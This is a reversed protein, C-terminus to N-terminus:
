ALALVSRGTWVDVVDVFQFGTSENWQPPVGYEHRIKFTRRDAVTLRHGLVAARVRDAVRRAAEGSSGVSHTTYRVDAFGQEASISVDSESDLSVWVVVYPPESLDPPAGDFVTLEVDAALLALFATAHEHIM